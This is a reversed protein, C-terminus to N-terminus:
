GVLEELKIEAEKCVFERFEKLIIKWFANLRTKPSSNMDCCKLLKTLIVKGDVRNNLLSYTTLDPQFSLQNCSQKSKNIKNYYSFSTQLSKVV